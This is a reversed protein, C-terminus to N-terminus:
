VQQNSTPQKNTAQQHKRKQGPVLALAQPSSKVMHMEMPLKLKELGKNDGM